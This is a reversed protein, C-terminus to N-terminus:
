RRLINLLSPKKSCLTSPQNNITQVNEAAVLFGLPDGGPAFLDTNNDIPQWGEGDRGQSPLPSTRGYAKGQEVKVELSRQEQRAPILKMQMTDAARDIQGEITMQQTNPHRGANELKATPHTTQRVNATYQYAGVTHARQWAAELQEQATPSADTATALAPWLLLGLLGVLLFSFFLWQKQQQVKM